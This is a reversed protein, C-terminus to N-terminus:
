PNYEYKKNAPNQRIEFINLTSVIDDEVKYFLSNQKNLVIKRIEPSAFSSKGLHSLKSFLDTKLLLTKGFKYAIELCWENKLYLIIRQLDENANRTWVIRSADM